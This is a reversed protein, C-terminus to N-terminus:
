LSQLRRWVTESRSSVTFGCRHLIRQSATGDVATEAIIRHVGEQQLAWACLAAVTETMDGNHEFPKGLGYGIEVVGEADPRGKFLASGVVM